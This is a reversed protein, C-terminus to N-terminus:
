RRSMIAAWKHARIEKQNPPGGIVNKIICHPPWPFLPRFRDGLGVTKRRLFPLNRLPSFKAVGVYCTFFPFKQRGNKKPEVVSVLISCLEFPTLSSRPRGVSQNSTDWGKQPYGGDERDLYPHKLPLYCSMLCCCPCLDDNLSSMPRMWLWVANPVSLIFHDVIM